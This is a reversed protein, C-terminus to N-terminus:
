PHHAALPDNATANAAAPAEGEEEEIGKSAGAGEEEKEDEDEEDSEEEEEDEDDGADFFSTPTYAVRNRRKANQTSLRLCGRIHVVEDRCRTFDAEEDIGHVLDSADYVVETFGNDKALHGLTARLHVVEAKAAEFSVLDSGDAPKFIEVSVASGM